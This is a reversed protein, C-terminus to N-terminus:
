FNWNIQTLYSVIFKQETDPPLPITGNKVHRNAIAWRTIGTAERHLQSAISADRLVWFLYSGRLRQNNSRIISLHYGCLLKPQTEVVLAPVAIDYPDESDKTILVDKKFFMKAMFDEIGYGVTLVNETDGLYEPDIEFVVTFEKAFETM